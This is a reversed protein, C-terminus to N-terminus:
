TVCREAAHTHYHYSQRCKSSCYVRKADGTFTTKCIPCVKEKPTRTAAFLKAVESIDMTAIMEPTLQELIM